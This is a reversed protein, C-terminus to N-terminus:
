RPPAGIVVDYHDVGEFHQNLIRVRLLRELAADQAFALSGSLAM